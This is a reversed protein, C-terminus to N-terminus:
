YKYQIPQDHKYLRTQGMVECPRQPVVSSKAVIGKWRTRDEAARTSSAFDIGTWRKINDERGLEEETLGKKKKWESHGSSNDKSFWFVKLTSVYAFWRLKSNKVMTLLDDYERIAAQIKQM